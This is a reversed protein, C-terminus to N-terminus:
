ALLWDTCLALQPHAWACSSTACGQSCRAGFVRQPDPGAGSTGPRSRNRKKAAPRHKEEWRRAYQARHLSRSRRAIKPCVRTMGLRTPISTPIAHLIHRIARRLGIHGSTESPPSTKGNSETLTSLSDRTDVQKCSYIGSVLPFISLRLRLSLGVDMPILLSPRQPAVSRRAAQWLVVVM